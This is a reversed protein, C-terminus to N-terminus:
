VWTQLGECAGEKVLEYEPVVGDKFPVAIAVTEQDSPYTTLHGLGETDAAFLLGGEGGVIWLDTTTDQPLTIHALGSLFHVIRFM